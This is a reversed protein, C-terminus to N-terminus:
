LLEHQGWFGNGTSHAPPQLWWRGWRLQRVVHMSCTFPYQVGAGSFSWTRVVVNAVVHGLAVPLNCGGWIWRWSHTLADSPLDSNTGLVRQTPTSSVCTKTRLDAGSKTVGCISSIPLSGSHWGVMDRVNGVRGSTFPLSLGFPCLLFHNGMPVHIKASSAWM